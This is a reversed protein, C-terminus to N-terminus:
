NARDTKEAEAQWLRERLLYGELPWMKKIADDFAIKRGLDEDYNAPDACASQGTVTFGNEMTLVAITLVGENIYKTDSVKAKISDITVHNPSPRNALAADREQDSMLGNM